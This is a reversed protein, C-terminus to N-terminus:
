GGPSPANPKEEPLVGRKELIEKLEQYSYDSEDNFSDVHTDLQINRVGVLVVERSNSSGGKAEYVALHETKQDLVYLLSVGAQYPGTVAVYRRGGDAAQAEIVPPFLWQVGFAGFIAGAFVLFPTRLFDSGSMLLFSLGRLPM